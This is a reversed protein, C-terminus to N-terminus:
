ERDNKNNTERTRKKVRKKPCKQSNELVTNQSLCLRQQYGRSRLFCNLGKRRTDKLLGLLSSFTRVAARTTSRYARTRTYGDVMARRLIRYVRPEERTSPPTQKTKEASTAREVTSPTHNAHTQNDIEQTSENANRVTEFVFVQSVFLM